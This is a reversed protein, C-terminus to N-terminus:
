HELIYFGPPSGLYVEKGASNNLHPFFIIHLSRDILGKISNNHGHLSHTLYLLPFYYKTEYKIEGKTRAIPTSGVHIAGSSGLDLADALKAVGALQNFVLIKGNERNRM